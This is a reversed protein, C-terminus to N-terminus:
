IRKRALTEFGLSKKRKQWAPQDEGGEVKTNM